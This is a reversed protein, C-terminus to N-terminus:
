ASYMGALGGAAAPYNGTAFGTIAQAGGQLFANKRRGKQEAYRMYAGAKEQNFGAQAGAARFGRNIRSKYPDLAANMGAGTSRQLAESFARPARSKGESRLMNMERRMREGSVSKFHEDDGLGGSLLGRVTQMAQSGGQTYPKQGEIGQDAAYLTRNKDGRAGSGGGRTIPMSQLQDVDFNGKGGKNYGIAM